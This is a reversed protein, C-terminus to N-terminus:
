KKMLDAKAWFQQGITTQADAMLWLMRAVSANEIVEDSPHQKWVQYAHDANAKARTLLYGDHTFRYMELDAEMLLNSWKLDDRYAGTRSDLFFDSAKASRKAMQLYRSEGTWRFLGLDSRIMLATNYTLKGGNKKETAVVENDMFLGDRAELHSDTWDVIKAATSVATRAQAAPLFKAVRLCAFAAPANSCTNKSGGKHGEHWWNGGGLQDDEGSLVFKLTEIARQLYQQEHTMEYAEIFTIVMWENDDYYKDNGNGRTPVPEYGPIAAKFDWYRDMSKFFRWAIPLYVDPHYRAAGLIAPFIIGNGWMFEAHHDTTSHHYLGQDNDYFTQQMYQTVEDAEIQYRNGGSADALGNRCVGMWIAAMVMVIRKM